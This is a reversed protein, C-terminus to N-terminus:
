YWCNRCKWVKNIKYTLMLENTGFSSRSIGGVNYDYSYALKLNKSLDIGFLLGMESWTRYLLGVYFTNYNPLNFYSTLNVEMQYTNAYQIGCVGYGLNIVNRSNQKYMGYVFNTNAYQKSIGPYFLSFINQSSAGLRWNSNTLEIGLEANFNNNNMLHDYITPDDPTTFSVKSLDYSLYQYSVGVGMNCKWYKWVDLSYAYSFDIDTTSTYGLQDQVLKLGFQTHLDENYLTGAAFGTTPSGPFSFWQKRAAMSFDALYKDDISAPNIYYTNGWYNTLRINSQAHAFFFSVCVILMLFAKKMM